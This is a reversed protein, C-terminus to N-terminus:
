DKPHGAGWEVLREAVLEAWHDMAEKAHNWSGFKSRLAKTGYRKDVAAALRTSSRSDLVELEAQAFGVASDSGFSARKLTSLALGIPMITSITDLVVESQDGDTLAARIRLVDEGPRDVITFNKALNERLASAFYNALMRQEERSDDRLEAGPAMFVMVPSIMVKSYMGWAARPNKYTLLAQDGKGPRMQSYDGLFGSRVADPAQQTTACGLLGSFCLTALSIKIFSTKM